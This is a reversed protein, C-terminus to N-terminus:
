RFVPRQWPVEAVVLSHSVVLTHRQGGLGDDDGRFSLLRFNLLGEAVAIPLHIRLEWKSRSNVQKQINALVEGTRSSHCPTGGTFARSHCPRGARSHARTTRADRGHVH